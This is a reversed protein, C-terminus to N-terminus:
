VTLFFFLKIFDKSPCIYLKHIVCCPWAVLSEPVRQKEAWSLWLAAGSPNTMASSRCVARQQAPATLHLTERGLWLVLLCSCFRVLLWGEWVHRCVRLSLLCVQELPLFCSTWSCRRSTSEPLDCCGRTRRGHSCPLDTEPRHQPFDATYNASSSLAAPPNQQSMEVCIFPLERRLVGRARWKASHSLHHQLTLMRLGGRWLLMHQCGGRGYQQRGCLAASPIRISRRLGGRCSFVRVKGGGFGVRELDCRQALDGATHLFISQLTASAFGCVPQCLLFLKFIIKKKGREAECLMNVKCPLQIVRIEFRLEDM